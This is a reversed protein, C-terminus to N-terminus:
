KSKLEWLSQLPINKVLRLTKGDPALILDGQFERKDTIYCVNSSPSIKAEFKWYDFQNKRSRYNLAGIEKNLYFSLKSAVQYNNALIEGTEGCQNKISHSWSKWGHFEKLRKIGIKEPSFLFLFRILFVFLFSATLLYKAKKQYWLNSNALLVIMPVALFITWNAEIKKNFSSIFFFIITGLVIFKLAREFSCKAKLKILEVWILPGVLAGALVVQSVLYEGIRYFNFGSSPRELFHYKLTSFGHEVQWFLHPLFLLLAVSAVLYFSRHLVLKPNSLITFFILLVGHYKAYFLLAIVVGLTISQWAGDRHLYKKLFYCYMITMFLLPMDPLAFLGALSALPFSFYLAFTLWYRRTMSILFFLGLYQLFIFGLRVSTEGHPLFSFLKIVLAVLPPHDFYGWDLNKSYLWYYAEDHALEFNGVLIIQLLLTILITLKLM